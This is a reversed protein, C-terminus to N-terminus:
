ESVAAQCTQRLEELRRIARTAGSDSNEADFFLDVAGLAGRACAATVREQARSQALQAAEQQEEGEANATAQRAERLQAAEQNVDAQLEGAEKEESVYRARVRRYQQRLRQSVATQRAEAQSDQQEETVLRERLQAIQQRQETNTAKEDNLSARTTIAWIGLGIAAVAFVVTAIIWGTPWDREDAAAPPGTM